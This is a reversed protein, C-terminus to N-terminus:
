LAMRADPSPQGSSECFGAVAQWESYMRQTLKEPQGRAGRAPRARRESLKKSPTGPPPRIPVASTRNPTRDTSVTDTASTPHARRGTTEWAAAGPAVPTVRAAGAGVGGGVIAGGGVIGGGAASAGLWGVGEGAGGGAAM